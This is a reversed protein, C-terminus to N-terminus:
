FNNYKKWCYSSYKETLSADNLVMEVLDNLSSFVFADVLGYYDEKEGAL